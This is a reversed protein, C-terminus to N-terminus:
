IPTPLDGALLLQPVQTFTWRDGPSNRTLVFVMDFRNDPWNAPPTPDAPGLQALIAGIKEHQWSILVPGAAGALGAVLEAEQGKTYQQNPTLGLAAALPTITELPRKSGDGNANSAFITAPRFLHPRLPAPSGDAARPDFLAALAGARNWGVVTLSKDDKEGAETIGYPAGSGTPKEGHRIIMVTDPMAGGHAPPAAPAPTAKDHSKKKDSGCADLLLTSAGAAGLALLSRRAIPM